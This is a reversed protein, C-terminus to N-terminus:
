IRNIAGLLPTYSWYSYPGMSILFAALSTNYYAMQDDVAGWGSAFSQYVAGIRPSTAAVLQM